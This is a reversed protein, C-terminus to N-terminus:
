QKFNGNIHVPVCNQGVIPISNQGVRPVLNILQKKNKNEL